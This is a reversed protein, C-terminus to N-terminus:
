TSLHIETTKSFKKVYLNYKIVLLYKKLVLFKSLNVRSLKINVLARHVSPM